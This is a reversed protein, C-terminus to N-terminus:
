KILIFDGKREHKTNELTEYQIYYYYSDARSMEGKYIGNWGKSLHDSEFLKEGLRNYIRMTFKRINNGFARFERNEERESYPMFATPVYFGDKSDRQLEIRTSVTDLCGNSHYIKLIYNQNRYGMFEPELCDSCNLGDIPSWQYREIQITDPDLTLIPKLVISNNIMPTHVPDLEIKVRKGAFLVFSDTAKCGNEDKVTPSYLGSSLDQFFGKDIFDSNNVSYQYKGLPATGGKAFLLIEGDNRNYCSEDVKKYTYYLPPPQTLSDEIEFKCNFKDFITLRYVGASLNTAKEKTEGHNWVYSYPPSGGKAFAVLEGEPLQYCRLDKKSIITGQLATEQPYLGFSKKIKCGNGDIVEVTYTGKRNYVASDGNPPPIVQFANAWNFQYPTKGGTVYFRSSWVSGTECQPMYNVLSAIMTDTPRSDETVRFICGAADRVNIKFLDAIVNNFIGSSNSDQNVRISFPSKGNLPLVKLDMRARPCKPAVYDLNARLVYLTDISSSDVRKCGNKDILTVNHKEFPKLGIIKSVATEGNSWIYYYPTTGGIQNIIEIQGDESELCSSNTTKLQFFISDPQVITTSSTSTCNNNDTVTVTYLGIGLNSLTSTTNSNSWLYSFNPTGGTVTISISANKDGFCKLSSKNATILIEDPSSIQQSLTTLCNKSDIVSLTYSGPLLSTNFSTTPGNSWKYTLAGTGGNASAYIYGNTEGFCRNNKFSDLYVNLKSPNLLTFTGNLVCGYNDRISFTHNGTGLGSFIPLPGYSGGDLNYMYPARGGFGSITLKGNSQNFCPVSDLLISYYFSDTAYLVITTDRQCQNNDKVKISYSGTGLNSFLSSTVFPNSNLSYTYGPTGGSAVMQIKGLVSKNCKISDVIASIQVKTPETIQASNAKLCGLNDRIIFNYVRSQLNKFSDLSSYTSGDFSFQYPSIGGNAIIKIRGLTDGFCKNDSKQISFSISDNQTLTDLRTFICGNADRVRLNYNGASLANFVSSPVFSGLNLSYSYGPRGGGAILNISGTTAGYCNINTKATSVTIQPYQGITLNTDIHCNNLDFVQVFYSGATLTSFTNSPQTASNKKYILPATGGSASIIIQGDNGGFCKVSDRTYTAILQPPNTLSRTYSRICLNADRISISHSTATLGSFTDVSAYPNGNLSIQYPSIGGVSNVKISGLDNYCKPSYLSISARLSDPQTITFSVSDKCNKSDLVLVYQSGATLVTNSDMTVGNKWLYNYPSGGGSVTLKAKADNGGYCSVNKLITLNSTIGAPNSLTVTSATKLCNKADRVQISYTGPGLNSFVPSSQFPGSNISYVYPGLGGSASATIKGDSGNRCRVTDTVTATIVIDPYQFVQINTDLTCGNTDKIKMLHTASALGTFNNNSSYPPTTRAYQYPSTGGSATLQIRGNSGGFCSVSDRVYTVSIPAPNTLTPTYAKICLNADRIRVVHTMATVGTLSDASSYGGGDISYTYPATGGTANVKIRGNTQNFCLPNYLTLNASIDTPQTITQCITDRCTNSDIVTVCYSGPSLNVISDLTGSNSWVYSYPSKGNIASAKLKGDAGGFCSINKFSSISVDPKSYTRVTDTFSRTCNFADKITLTYAGSNLASFVNSVQFSGSNLQYTFGPKGGSATIVFKGNANFPCTKESLISSQIQPYQYITFFSDAGCGVNDRARLTYYGAALGTIVNTTVFAGNNLSYTHPTATSSLSLTVQGTSAGFCRVSDTVISVSQISAPKISDLKSIQCGNRDTIRINYTGTTLKNFSDKSQANTGNLTFVYPTSGGTTTMRMMGSSDGVCYNNRKFFSTILSDNFASFSDVCQRANRVYYKKSGYGLPSITNPAVLSTLSLGYQIGSTDGSAFIKVQGSNSSNFCGIRQVSDILPKSFKVLNFKLTDRRCGYPDYNRVVWYTNVGNILRTASTSGNNWRYSVVGTNTANLTMTDVCRLTDSRTITTNSNTLAIVKISDKVVISNSPCSATISSTAVFFASDDTATLTQTAASGLNTGNKSWQLSTSYNSGSPTFRYATGGGDWTVNNRGPTVVVQSSNTGMIGQTAQIGNCIPKSKVYIDIMNTTEYLVIKMNCRVSSNSRCTTSYYRVDNFKVIFARYPASGVTQTTITGGGPPSYSPDLLMDFLAGFICNQPVYTTTTPTYSLPLSTGNFPVNSVGSLGAKNTSFTVFGNDCIVLSSFVQQYFCFNFGISIASSYKDDLSLNAGAVLSGNAECPLSDIYAISAVTYASAEKLSPLNAHLTISSGKCLTTDKKSPGGSSASINFGVLSCGQGISELSVILLISLLGIKVILNM